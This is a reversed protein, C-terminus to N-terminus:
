PRLLTGLRGMVGNLADALPFYGEMEIDGLGVAAQPDLRNGLAALAISADRFIIRVNARVEPVVECLELGQGDWRLFRKFNMSRVGFEMTASRDRPLAKTTSPDSKGLLVSGRLTIDMLLRVAIPLDDSTLQLSLRDDTLEKFRRAVRAFRILHLIARPTPLFLPVAGKKEEFFGVVHKASFYHFRTVPGGKWAIENTAKGHCFNLQGVGGMRGSFRIGFHWNEASKALRKDFEMLLPFAGLVAKLYLASKLEYM